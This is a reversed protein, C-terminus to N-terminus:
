VEGAMWEEGREMWWGRRAEILHLHYAGDGEVQWLSRDGVLSRAATAHSHTCVAAGVMEEGEIPWLLQRCRIQGDREVSPECGRHAKAGPELAARAAM